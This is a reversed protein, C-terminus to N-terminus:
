HGGRGGRRQMYNAFVYEATSKAVQQGAEQDFRYHIGSWIRAMFMQEAVESFSSFSQTVDPGASQKWTATFAIDDRGLALELARMGSTGITVINGAYSPYPPTTILPMWNPDADTADNLDTDANRIATVPRWVGYVFKSSQTAQLADHISVNLLVYLRATQVLSLRRDRAVDRVINNLVSLFNTSTGTGNAGVGAWLRAILTQEPTRAMSTDQGLLKVEDFDNAYRESTLTPPAPPLFQTASVLAMPAAFQMHTFAAAANAPPTPQWFGPLQPLKYEPAPANLVWGDNQRWALIEQAVRAGVTAGRRVFSSPRKGLQSSLLADYTAAASPNLAVLVDHAAQAAAAEPSGGDSSRPRAHFPAYEREIANIADFMAVHTMSFPRVTGVGQTPFSNQLAQNWEALVGASPGTARAHRTAPALLAVLVGLVLLGTRNSVKM